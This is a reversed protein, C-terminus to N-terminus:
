LEATLLIYASSNVSLFIGGQGSTMGSSNLILRASTTTLGDFSIGTGVYAGAGNDLKFHTASSASASASTRMPPFVIGGRASTSSDVYGTNIAGGNGYDLRNCYRKCKMETVSYSEREFSTATTGEELQVGTIYFTAGSTGVLPTEGTCSYYGTSAWAGATGVYSSGM